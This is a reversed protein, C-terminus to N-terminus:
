PFASFTRGHVQRPHHSPSHSVVAGCGGDRGSLAMQRPQLCPPTKTLQSRCGGPPTHGQASPPPPARLHTSAPGRCGEVSHKLSGAPGQSPLGGVHLPGPQWAARGRLFFLGLGDMHKEQGENWRLRDRVWGSKLPTFSLLRPASVAAAAASYSRSPSPFAWPPLHARFPSMQLTAEGASPSPAPRHVSQM